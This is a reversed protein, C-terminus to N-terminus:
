EEEKKVPKFGRGLIEHADSINVFANEDVEEIFSRLIEVERRSMVSYIMKRESGEYAGEGTFITAGRMIDTRIKDAIIQYQESIIMVTKNVSAGGVILDIVKGEIYILIWSYLPLKWDNFAVLTLLVITSDVIIVLQGLSIRPMYKHGIMAIIDSGGSTARSKFILGIAVGYIVGGFVTALLPDDAILPEYGWWYTELM